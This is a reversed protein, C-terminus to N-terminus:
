GLYPINLQSVIGAYTGSKPIYINIINYMYVSEIVNKSEYLVDCTTAEEM